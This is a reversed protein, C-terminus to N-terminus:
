QSRCIRNATRFTVTLANIRFLAPFRKRLEGTWFSNFRRPTGKVIWMMQPEPFRLLAGEFERCLEPGTRGSLEQIIRGAYVKVMVVELTPCHFDTLLAITNTIDALNFCLELVLSRLRSWNGFPPAFRNSRHVGLTLSEVTSQALGLGLLLAAVSGEDEEDSWLVSNKREFSHLSPNFGITLARLRLRESLRQKIVDRHAQSGQARIVVDTCLRIVRTFALLVRAFESSTPFSLQNLRLIQIHTSLQRCCILTSRNLVTPVYGCVITSKPPPFVLAPLNPLIRLLPFPAFHDPFCAISRVFPKLHSKARLFDCFDFIQGRSQFEPDAVMFCLSRFRLQHCTLSFNYLTAPHDGCQSMIRKIVEWPLLPSQM